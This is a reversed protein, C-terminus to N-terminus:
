KLPSEAGANALKKAVLVQDGTLSTDNLQPVQNKLYPVFALISDVMYGFMGAGFWSAFVATISNGISPIGVWGLVTSLFQPYSRLFAFFLFSLFLRSLLVVANQKLVVLRSYAANNKARVIADVQLMMHLLYGLLFMVYILILTSM